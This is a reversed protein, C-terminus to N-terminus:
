TNVHDSCTHPWRNGVKHNAGSVEATIAYRNRNSEQISKHTATLSYLKKENLLIDLSGHCDEVEFSQRRRRKVAPSDTQSDITTNGQVGINTQAFRLRFRNDCTGTSVYRYGEVACLIYKVRLLRSTAEYKTLM